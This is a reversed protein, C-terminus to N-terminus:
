RGAAAGYYSLLSDTIREWSFRELVRQRGAKGMARRRNEDSLLRIIASALAAADGREVVFGTKGDEVIEVMGGSRTCVVPVEMAMAEVTPMGFPEQWVSPVVAVDAKRFEEPLRHHPLHGKFFVRSAVGSSLRDRLHVRYDGRYFEALGASTPDYDTEILMEKSMVFQPGVIHLEAEPFRETVLRFADLLVHVGKHPSIMGVFLLRKVRPDAKSESGAQPAFQEVDVGNYVTHCRDSLAPFARRVKATCYDSCTVVLDVLRLRQEIMKHDLSSLWEGQMHLVITARPNLRRILPVFQSFNLIHIIDCSQARLDRGVALYYDPYYLRSAFVPRRPSLTGWRDLLRLPRLLRGIVVPVRRYEVSEHHETSTQSHGRRAYCLVAHSRALRRAVESIWIGISDDVAGPVIVGWPHHVFAIKM